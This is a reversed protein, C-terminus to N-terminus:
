RDNKEGKRPHKKYYDKQYALIHTANKYYYDKHYQKSNKYKEKNREKIEQPHTKKYEEYYKRRKIKKEEISLKHKPKSLLRIKDAVYSNKLEEFDLHGKIYIKIGQKLNEIKGYFPINKPIIIIFFQNNVKVIITFIAKDGQPAIQHIEGFCSFNFAPKFM